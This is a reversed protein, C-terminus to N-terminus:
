QAGRLREMHPFERDASVSLRDTEWKPAAAADIGFSRMRQANQEAWVKTDLKGVAFGQPCYFEIVNRTPSEFSALERAYGLYRFQEVWLDRLHNGLVLPKTPAYNIVRVTWEIKKPM